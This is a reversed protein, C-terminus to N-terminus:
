LYWKFWQHYGSVSKKASSFYNHVGNTQLQKTWVKGLFAAQPSQIFNGCKSSKSNWKGSNLRSKSSTVDEPIPIPGFQAVDAVEIWQWHWPRQRQRQRQREVGPIPSRGFQAVDAVEVEGISKEQEVSSLSACASSPFHIHLDLWHLHIQFGFPFSM